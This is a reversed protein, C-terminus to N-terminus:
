FGEIVRFATGSGSSSGGFRGMASISDMMEVGRLGVPELVLVARRRFCADRFRNGAGGRLRGIVGVEIGSWTCDLEVLM